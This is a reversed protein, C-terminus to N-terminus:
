SIAEKSAIDISLKKACKKACKEIHEIVKKDLGKEWTLYEDKLGIREIENLSAHFNDIDIKTLMNRERINQLAMHKMHQLRHNYTRVFLNMKWRDM